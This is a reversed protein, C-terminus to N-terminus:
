LLSGFSITATMPGLMPFHSKSTSSSTASWNLSSNPYMSFTMLFFSSIFVKISKCVILLFISSSFPNNISFMSIILRDVTALSKRWEKLLSLPSKPKIPDTATRHYPFGSGIMNQITARILKLGINM